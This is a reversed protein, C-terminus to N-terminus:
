RMKLWIVCFSETAVGGRQFHLPLVFRDSAIGSLTPILGGSVAMLRVRRAKFGEFLLGDGEPEYIYMRASQARFCTLLLAQGSSRVFIISALVPWLAGYILIGALLVGFLQKKPM